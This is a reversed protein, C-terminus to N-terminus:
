TCPVPNIHCPKVLSVDTFSVDFMRGGFDIALKSKDEKAPGKVTGRSEFAIRPSYWKLYVVVGVM